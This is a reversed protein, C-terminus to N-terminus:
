IFSGTSRADIYSIFSCNSLEENIAADLASDVFWRNPLRLVHPENWLESALKASTLSFTSNSGLIHRHKALFLFDDEADTGQYIVFSKAGNEELLRKLNVPDDTVLHIPESGGLSESWERAACLQKSLPYKAFMRQNEPWLYDGLRIHAVVQGRPFPRLSYYQLLQNKLHNWFRKATRDFAQRRQFYGVLGYWPKTTTQVIQDVIQGDTQHDSVLASNLQDLCLRMLSVGQMPPSLPENLTIVSRFAHDRRSISLLHSFFPHLLIPNVRVNIGTRVHLSNAYAMQILQNGLGGKLFVDLRPTMM